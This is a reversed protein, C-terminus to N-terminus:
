SIRVQILQNMYGYFTEAMSKQGPVLPLNRRLILADGESALPYFYDMASSDQIRIRNRGQLGRVVQGDTAKEAVDNLMLLEELRQRGTGGNPWELQVAHWARQSLRDQVQPRLEGFRGEAWSNLIRDFFPLLNKFPAEDLNKCAQQFQAVAPGASAVTLGRKTQLAIADKTVLFLSKVTQIPHMAMNALDLLALAGFSKGPKVQENAGPLPQPQAPTSPAAIGPINWNVAAPAV